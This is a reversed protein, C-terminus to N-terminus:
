VIIGVVTGLIIGGPIGLGGQWVFFADPWWCGTDAACSYKDSFDTLVHYLRAGVLGAPIAWLAVTTLDEPDGGWDRWRKRALAVAALAGLAICLGYMRFSFPGLELAKFPPSPIVSLMGLASVSAIMTSRRADRRPELRDPATPSATPRGPSPRRPGPCRGTVAERCTSTSGTSRGKGSACRRARSSRMVSPATSPSRTWIRLSPSRRPSVPWCAVSSCARPSARRM